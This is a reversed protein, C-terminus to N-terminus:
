FVGSNGKILSFPEHLWMNVIFQRIVFDDLQFLVCLNIQKEHYHQPHQPLFFQMRTTLSILTLIEQEAKRDHDNPNM